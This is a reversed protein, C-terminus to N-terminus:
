VVVLILMCTSFSIWSLLLLHRLELFLLLHLLHLLLGLLTLLMRLLVFLLRRRILLPPSIALGSPKLPWSHM